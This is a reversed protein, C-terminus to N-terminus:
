VGEQGPAEQHLRRRCRGGPCQGAATSALPPPVRPPPVRRGGPTCEPPPSPPAPPPLPPPAPPPRLRQRPRPHARWLRPCPGSPACCECSCRACRAQRLNLRARSPLPPSLRPLHMCPLQRPESQARNASLQREPPAARGQRTRAPASGQQRRAGSAPTGQTSSQEKGVRGGAATCLALALTRALPARGDADVRGGGKVRELRQHPLRQADVRQIRLKEQPSAAHLPTHAQIRTAQKWLQAVRSSASTWSARSQTFRAAHLLVRGRCSGCGAVRTSGGMCAGPARRHRLVASGRQCLALHKRPVLDLHHAPLLAPRRIHQSSLM